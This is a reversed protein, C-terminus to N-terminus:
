EAEPAPNILTWFGGHRQVASCSLSAVVSGVVL